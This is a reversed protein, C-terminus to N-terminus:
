CAAIGERFSKTAGERQLTCPALVHMQREWFDRYFNVMSIFGRLQRLTKPKDLQLIGQIKKKWPKIGNLTLWHGLWNTEM